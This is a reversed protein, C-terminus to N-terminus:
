SFCKLTKENLAVSEALVLEKIYFLSYVNLVMFVVIICNLIDPFEM